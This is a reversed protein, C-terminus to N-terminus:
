NDLFNQGSNFQDILIQVAITDISQDLPVVVEDASAVAAMGLIFAIALLFLTTKPRKPTVEIPDQEFEPEPYNPDITAPDYNM